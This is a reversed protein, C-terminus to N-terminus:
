RENGRWLTVSPSEGFLKRYANSFDGMHWFGHAMAAAKVTLGSPAALLQRRVAWMRKLRLYQHLSLGHVARTAIQLTRTSVGLARALDESYPMATGSTAVLEDLRLVLRVQRDHSGRSPRVLPDPMIAADLASLFQELMPRGLAEYTGLDDVASAARFMELTLAQLASMREEVVAIFQLGARLDPWGREQMDSNLRLMLYSNPRQEVVEAPSKGRTVLVTSNDVDRGNISGQLSLPIVLGVGQHPGFEVEIRRAFTRQLVFMGSPLALNARTFSFERPALPTSRGGGLVEHARFEDPETFQEISLVRSPTLQRPAMSNTEIVIIPPVAENGGNIRGYWIEPAPAQRLDVVGHPTVQGAGQLWPSNRISGFCARNRYAKEDPM